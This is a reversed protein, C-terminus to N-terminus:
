NGLIIEVKRQGTIEKATYNTDSIVGSDIGKSMFYGELTNKQENSLKLNKSSGTFSNNHCKIEVRLGEHQKIISAIKDLSPYLDFRISSSRPTFLETSSLVLSGGDNEVTFGYINSFENKLNQTTEYIAAAQDYAQKALQISTEADVLAQEYEGAKHSETASNYHTYAKSLLASSYITADVQEAANIKSLASEINNVSNNYLLEESLSIKDKYQRLESVNEKFESKIEANQEKISILQQELAEAKLSTLSNRIISEATKLKIEALKLYQIYLETNGSLKEDDAKDIYDAAQGLLLQIQDDTDVISTESQQSDAHHPYLIILLLLILFNFLRHTM